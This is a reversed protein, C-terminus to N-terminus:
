TVSWSSPKPSLLYINAPWCILRGPGQLVLDACCHLGLEGDGPGCSNELKRAMLIRWGRARQLGGVGIGYPAGQGSSGALEQARFIQWIRPQLFQAPGAGVGEGKMFSDRLQRHRMDSGKSVYGPVSLATYVGEPRPITKNLVLLGLTTPTLEPPDLRRNGM